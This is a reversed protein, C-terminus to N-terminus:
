LFIVKNKISFQINLFYLLFKFIVSFVIFMIFIFQDSFKFNQNGRKLNQIGFLIIYPGMYSTIRWRNWCSPNIKIILSISMIKKEWITMHISNYEYWKSGQFMYWVMIILNQLFLLLLSYFYLYTFTVLMLVCSNQQNRINQLHRM